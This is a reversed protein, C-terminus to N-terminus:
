NCSGSCFDLSTGNVKAPRFAALAEVSALKDMVLGDVEDKGQYHVLYVVQKDSLSQRAVKDVGPITPLLQGIQRAAVYDLGAASSFSLIYDAGAETLAYKQQERVADAAATQKSVRLWYAQISSGIDEGARTGLQEALKSQCNTTSTGNATGNVATVPLNSLGKTAKIEVSLTGSCRYYTGSDTMGEQTVMLTGGAFFAVKKSNLHDLFPRFRADNKLSGWKPARGGFYYSSFENISTFGVGYKTAIQAINTIATQEDEFVPSTDRNAVVQKFNVDDHVEAQVNNKQVQSNSYSSASASRSSSAASGSYGSRAAASGYYGSAAAAASGRVAVGDASRESSAEKSKESSAAISKDSYSAGKSSSYETVVESPANLDRPTGVAFDIMMVVTAADGALEASTDIEAARIQERFWSRDVNAIVSVILEGNVPTPIGVIRLASPSIQEKLYQLQEATVRGAPALGLTQALLSRVVKTRADDLAANMIAERNPNKGVIAARGDAPIPKDSQAWVPQVLATTALAATVFVQKIM